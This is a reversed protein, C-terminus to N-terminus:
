EPSEWNIEIGRPSVIVLVDDLLEKLATAVTETTKMSQNSADLFYKYEGKSAASKISEECKAVIDQWDEALADKMGKLKKIRAEAEKSLEYLERRKSNM